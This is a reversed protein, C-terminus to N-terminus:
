KPSLALPPKGLKTDCFKRAYAPFGTELELAKIEPADKLYEVMASLILQQVSGDLDVALMKMRRHLEIDAYWTVSKHPDQKIRTPAVLPPLDHHVGYFTDCPLTLLHQLNSEAAIAIRTFAAHLNEPVYM